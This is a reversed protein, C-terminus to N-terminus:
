AALPLVANSRAARVSKLFATKQKYVVPDSPGDDGRDRKGFDAPSVIVAPANKTPTRSKPLARDPHTNAVIGRPNPGTIVSNKM